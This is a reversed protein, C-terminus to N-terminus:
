SAPEPRHAPCRRILDETLRKAGEVAEELSEGRALGCAIAASFVCGTGHADRGEVREPAFRTVGDGTVLVDTGPEEELHGGTVVVAAAGLDRIAAAARGADDASEVPLGSLRRAEDVNPTVLTALPLLERRLAELGGEQLLPAGSSSVLVPDVVLVRTAERRIEEAVVEVIEATALMGTKVAGPEFDRLITRVQQRVLDASVPEWGHVGRSDQVTIATVASAGRCGLEAATRLDAQIGAGGTPDSGAITLITPTM